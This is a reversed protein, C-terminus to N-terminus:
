PLVITHEGEKTRITVQTDNAAFQMKDIADTAEYVVTRTEGSQDILHVRNEGDAVLVRNSKGTSFAVDVVPTGFNYQLRGFVKGQSNIGSVENIVVFTGDRFLAAERGGPGNWIKPKEDMDPLSSTRFPDETAETLSLEGSALRDGTSQDLEVPATKNLLAVAWRKLGPDKAAKEPKQLIQIALNVYDKSVSQQAISSQIMWGFGAIAIPVLLMGFGKCISEIDEFINRKPATLGGSEQVM